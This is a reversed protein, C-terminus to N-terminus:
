RAYKNRTILGVLAEFVEDERYLIDEAASDGAWASPKSSRTRRM